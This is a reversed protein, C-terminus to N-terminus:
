GIMQYISLFAIFNNLVHLAIGYELRKFKFAFFGIVAGMSAYTFFAGWSDPTHVLSFLLCSMLYGLWPKKFFKQQIFGRFILEEIIPALIVLDIFMFYAPFLHVLSELAKQNSTDSKDQLSMLWSGINDLGYILLYAFLVGFILIKWNPQVKKIFGYHYLLWVVSVLIVLSVLIAFTIGLPGPPIIQGARIKEQAKSGYKISMQVGSSFYLIMSGLQEALFFGVALGLWKLKELFLKM